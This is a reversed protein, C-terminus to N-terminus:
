ADVERLSAMDHREIHMPTLDAHAECAGFAKCTTM